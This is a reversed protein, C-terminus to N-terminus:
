FMVYISESVEEELEINTRFKQGIEILSVIVSKFYTSFSSDYWGGVIANALAHDSVDECLM